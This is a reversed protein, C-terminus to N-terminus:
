RAREFDKKYSRRRKLPKEDFKLMVTKWPCVSAYKCGSNCYSLPSKDKDDDRKNPFPCRDISGLEKRLMDHYESLARESSM